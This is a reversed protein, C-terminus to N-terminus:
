FSEHLTGALGTTDAIRLPVGKTLVLYLLRDQLGARRIALGM